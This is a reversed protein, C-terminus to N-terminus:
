TTIRIISTPQSAHHARLQQSDLMETRLGSTVAFDLTAAGGLDWRPVYIDAPRRAEPRADDGGLTDSLVGTKEPEPRWGASTALRVGVNRIM